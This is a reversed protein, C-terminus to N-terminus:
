ILFRFGEIKRDLNYEVFKNMIVVTKQILKDDIKIRGLKEFNEDLSVKYNQKDAKKMSFLRVLKIANDSVEIASVDKSKCKKDLIGGLNFSFYNRESSIKESCLVCKNMEPSFGSLYLINIQFLLLSLYYKKIVEAIGCRGIDVKEALYDLFHLEEWLLEFVREDKHHQITMKNTLELAYYAGLSIKLNNRFNLFNEKVTSNTIIDFNRGHALILDALLFIELHGKLKGRAKRASRATAQIKGYEKTYIDLLLNAEGFHSRKIIIGQTKYTSM